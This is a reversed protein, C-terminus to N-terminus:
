FVMQDDDPFVDNILNAAYEYIREDKFLFTHLVVLDSYNGITEGKPISLALSIPFKLNDELPVPELVSRPTQVPRLLCGNVLKYASRPVNQTVIVHSYAQPLSINM